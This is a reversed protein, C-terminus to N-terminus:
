LSSFYKEAGLTRIKGFEEDLAACLESVANDRILTRQRKKGQRVTLLDVSLCLIRKEDQENPLSLELSVLYTYAADPRERYEEGEDTQYLFARQLQVGLEEAEELYAKLRQRALARLERETETAAARAERNQKRQVGEQKERHRRIAQKIDAALTGEIEGDYFKRIARRTLPGRRIHGEMYRRWKGEVRGDVTFVLNFFLSFINTASGSEQDAYISRVNKWLYREAPLCLRYICVGVGDFRYLCPFLLAGALFLLSLFLFLFGFASGAQWEMVAVGLLGVAFIAFFLFLRDLVFVRKM